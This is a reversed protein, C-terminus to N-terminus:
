AAIRKSESTKSEVGSARQGSCGVGYWNIGDLSFWVRKVMEKIAKVWRGVGTCLVPSMQKAKPGRPAVATVQRRRGRGASIGYGMPGM